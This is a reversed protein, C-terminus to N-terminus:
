RRAREERKDIERAHIELLSSWSACDDRGVRAVPVDHIAAWRKLTRPSAERGPGTEAFLASAETLTVMDPAPSAPTHPILTTVAM